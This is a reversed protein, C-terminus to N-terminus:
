ARTVVLFSCADAFDDAPWERVAEPTTGYTAAVVHVLVRVPLRVPDGRAARKLAAKM